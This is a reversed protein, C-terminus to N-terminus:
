VGHRKKHYATISQGKKVFKTIGDQDITFNQIPLSKLAQKVEALEAIVPQLNMTNNMAAFQKDYMFKELDRKLSEKIRLRSLDEYLMRSPTKTNRALEIAAELSKNTTAREVVEENSMNGLRRAHAVKFVKEGQTLMAPVTDVGSPFRGAKDVYETGSAYKYIHNMFAGFSLPSNAINHEKIYKKFMDMIFNRRNAVGDTINNDVLWKRYESQTNQGWMDFNLGSEDSVSNSINNDISGTSLSIAAAGAQARVANIEQQIKRLQELTMVGAAQAEHAARLMDEYGRLIAIRVTEWSAKIAEDRAYTLELIKADYEEQLRILESKKWEEQKILANQRDLERQIDDAQKQLKLKDIKEEADIRIKETASYEKRKEGESDVVFELESIYWKNLDAIAAERAEKASNIANITAQSMGDVIETDALSFIGKIEQLKSAYEGTISDKTEQNTILALLSEAQGMRIANSAASFEQDALRQRLDYVDNIRKVELDYVRNVGAVQDDYYQKAKTTAMSYTNEIEKARKLENDIIFKPDYESLAKIYEVAPDALDMFQGFYKKLDDDANEIFDKWTTIQKEYFVRLDEMEAQYRRKNATFLNAVGQGAWAITAALGSVWDKMWAQVVTTVQSGWQTWMKENELLAKETESNAKSMRDEWMAGYIALAGDAIANIIQFSQDIIKQRRQERAVLEKLEQESLESIDKNYIRRAVKNADMGRKEIQLIVSNRLQVLEELGQKLKEEEAINDKVEEIKLKYTAENYQSQADNLQKYLDARQKKTDVGSTAEILELRKIQARLEQVRLDAARQQEKLIDRNYEKEAKELDEHTKANAVLRLYNSKNIYDMQTSIGKKQADYLEKQEKEEQKNGNQISKLYARQHKDFNKMMDERAKDQAKMIEKLKAEEKQTLDRGLSTEIDKIREAYENYAKIREKQGKGTLEKLEKEQEKIQKTYNAVVAPDTAADRLAKLEKIRAKTSEVLGKSAEAEKSYNGVLSQAINDSQSKYADQQKMLQEMVAKAENAKKQLRQAESEVTYSIASGNAGYGKVTPAKSAKDALDQLTAYAKTVKDLQEQTKDSKYALVALEIRKAYEGNVTALIGGLKKEADQINDIGKLLNPFEGKLKNLAETRKDISLNGDLITNSLQQFRVTQQIIPATADNLGKNFEEQKKRAEDAEDSFLKYAGYLAALSVLVLGFPNAALATNFTRAAVAARMNAMSLGDTNKAVAMVALAAQGQLITGAQTIGYWLTQVAIAAQVASRIALITGAVKAFASIAAGAINLVTKLNDALFGLGAALTKTFGTSQNIEDAYNIISNTLRNWQGGVTGLMSKAKEGYTKELETALKPLLDVALIEGRELMKNLEVTTVGMAKASLEFAGPIVSLQKKLEEAQITGKSFMDTVARFAREMEDSSLKLASGTKVLSGYIRQREELSLNSLNSSAIFSTYSKTLTNVNQGYQDSIKNLFEISQLYEENTGVANSMATRIRDTEVTLNFLQKSYDILRDAVFITGLASGLTKFMNAGQEAKGTLKDIEKQTERIQLNYNAIDEVNNAQQRLKRLREMKSELGEIIGGQSKLAGSQSDVASKAGDAAGMLQREKAILSDLGRQGEATEDEAIVRIRVDEAM